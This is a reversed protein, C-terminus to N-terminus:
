FKGDIVIRVEKGDGVVRGIPRAPSGAVVTRPEVDKNVFSNAGVVCHDGISVGAVIVSQPGIYVCDGITV